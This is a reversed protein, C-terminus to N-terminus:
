EEKVSVIPNGDADTWTPDELEEEEESEESSDTSDEDVSEEEEDHEEESEMYEKKQLRRSGLAVFVGLGVVIAIIIGYLVIPLEEVEEATTWSVESSTQGAEDAILDSVAELVDPYLFKCNLTTAEDTYHWWSVPVDKSEGPAVEWNGTNATTDAEEGNTYCRVNPNAPITGTNSITIMVYHTKGTDATVADPVIKDISLSPYTVDVNSTATKPAVADAIFDGWNSEVTIKITGTEQHYTGTGDVWEVIRKSESTGIDVFWTSQDTDGNIITNITNGNYGIGTAVVTAVKANVHIERKSLLRIWADTYGGTGTSEEYDITAQDHIIIDEDTRSGLIVSNNVGIHTGNAVHIPGSGILTSDNFHCLHECSINAGMLTSGDLLVTGHNLIHFSPQNWSLSGGSQSLEEASITLLEANSHFIEIHTIGFPLPYYHDVGILFEDTLDVTTEFSTGTIENTTNEDITLNLYAEQPVNIDFYITMTATTDAISENIAVNTTDFILLTSVSAQGTLIANNLNLIGGEQITITSDTSIQSEGTWTLVGGDAIVVDGNLNGGEWTQSDSVLTTSGNTPPSALTTSAFLIPIMMLITLLSATRM